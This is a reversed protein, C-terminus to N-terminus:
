EGAMIRQHSIINPTLERGRYLGKRDADSRGAVCFGGLLLLLMAVNVPMGGHAYISSVRRGSFRDYPPPFLM